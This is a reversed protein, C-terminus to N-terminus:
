KIDLFLQTPFKIPNSKFIYIEKTPYLNESYWDYSEMFMHSWKM